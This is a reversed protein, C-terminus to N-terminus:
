FIPEAFESDSDTDATVSQDADAFEQTTVDPDDALPLPAPPTGDIVRVQEKFWRPFMGGSRDFAKKVTDDVIFNECRDHPTRTGRGCAQVLTQAMEYTPYTWDEEKRKAQVAGRLDPYPAKVIVQFECQDLPFDYGTTVSPSVLVAPAPLQKFAEVTGITNGTENLIMLDKFESQEMLDVARQYSTTHIIGKRDLRDAIIEDVRGVILSFEEPGTKHNLAVTPLFYVPSRSSDFSAGYEYFDCESRKIGLLELTKHNITASVLIIKPIGLFLLKEAYTYPWVAQLRYGDKRGRITRPEVVWPGAMSSVTALKGVLARWSMARRVSEKDLEQSCDMILKRTVLEAVPLHTMAWTKWEPLSRPETPWEARLMGEVERESFPINVQESVQNPANHAEDLVLTDFGGIGDGFRHILCWYAYNTTVLQSHKAANYQQKYPCATATVGRPVQFHKCGMTSGEECSLPEMPTSRCCTFNNKGKVSVLGCEHFDDSNHSALGAAVLTKTSTGLSVVEMEGLYEKGVVMVRATPGIMGMREVDWKPLLRHPRVQGLFRIVESRHSLTILEAPKRGVVGAVPSVSYRFRMLGLLEKVKDLMPNLTQSFALNVDAVEGCRDHHYLRQTLCGEGDFAASLYGVAYDYDQNREWVDLVRVIRSSCRGGSRLNETTTWTNVGCQTKTLWKHGSSCVVVTGDELTIRYCPQTIRGTHLVTSGRWRRRSPQPYEDFGVLSEGPRLSGVEVWRLDGRLVLTDPVLCYQLQLGKTSTLVATRNGTYLAEAIVAASKGGGTPCAHAVFRKTSNMSREIMLRQADRFEDFKPPLGLAAPTVGDMFPTM